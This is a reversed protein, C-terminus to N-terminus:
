NSETIEIYSRLKWAMKEHDEMIKILIDCTGFDNTDKYKAIIHRITKTISQTDTLLKGIMQNESFMKTCDDEKLVVEQEVISRLTSPALYGLQRIREALIDITEPQAEYIDQFLEHLQSFRGGIVNWHFSWSKMYYKFHEGILLKLDESINLRLPEDIGINPVIYM